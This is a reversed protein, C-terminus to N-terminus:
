WTCQTYWIYLLGVLLGVLRGPVVDVLDPLGVLHLLHWIRLSSPNENRRGLGVKLQEAVLGQSIDSIYM